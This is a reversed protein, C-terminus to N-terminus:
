IDSLRASPKVVNIPHLANTSLLNRYTYSMLIGALHYTKEYSRAAVTQQLASIILVIPRKDGALNDLFKRLAACRSLHKAIQERPVASARGVLRHSDDLLRVPSAIPPGPPSGHDGMVEYIPPAPTLRLSSRYRLDGSPGGTAPSAHFVSRMRNTSGNIM